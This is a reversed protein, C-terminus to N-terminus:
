SQTIQTLLQSFNDLQTQKEQIMKRNKVFDMFKDLFLEMQDKGLFSVESQIQKKKYERNPNRGNKNGVSGKKVSQTALPEKKTNNPKIPLPKKSHFLKCDKDECKGKERISKCKVPHMFRCSDGHKCKGMSNKMFIACKNRHLYPCSGEQTKGSRGFKCINKRHFPCHKLHMKSHSNLEESSAFMKDCQSCSVAKESQTKLMKGCVHNSIDEKQLWKFCKQCKFKSMQQNKILQLGSDQTITDFMSEELIEQPSRKTCSPAELDNEFKYTLDCQSSSFTKEEEDGSKAISLEQKTTCQYTDMFFRIIDILGPRAVQNPSPSKGNSIIRITERSKENLNSNLLIEKFEETLTDDGKIVEKKNEM